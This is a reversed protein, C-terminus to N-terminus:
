IEKVCWAIFGRECLVEAQYECEADTTCELIEKPIENGKSPDTMMMLVVWLLLGCVVFGFIRM